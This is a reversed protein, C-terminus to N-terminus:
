KLFASLLLRVVVSKFAGSCTHQLAHQIFRPGEFTEPRQDGPVITVRLPQLAAVMQYLNVHSGAHANMQPIVIESFNETRLRKLTWPAIRLLGFRRGPVEIVRDAGAARLLHKHGRHSLVVIEAERNKTRAMVVATLLQAIRCSRVILIRPRAARDATTAGGTTVAPHVLASSM